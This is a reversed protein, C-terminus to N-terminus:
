SNRHVDSQLHTVCQAPPSEKTVVDLSSVAVGVATLSNGWRSLALVRDECQVAGQYVISLGTKAASASPPLRRLAADEPSAAPPTCPLPRRATPWGGSSSACPALLQRPSVSVGRFAGALLCRPASCMGTLPPPPPPPTLLVFSAPHPPGASPTSFPSNVGTFHSILTRRHTATANTTTPPITATSVLPPSLSLFRFGGRAFLSCLAPCLGGCAPPSIWGVSKNNNSVTIQM